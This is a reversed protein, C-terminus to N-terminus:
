AGRIEPAAQHAVQEDLLRAREGGDLIEAAEPVQPDADRGRAGHIAVREHEGVPEDAVRVAGGRQLAGHDAGADLQGVVAQDRHGPGVHRRGPVARRRRGPPRHAKRPPGSSTKASLSRKPARSLPGNMSGARPWSMTESPTRIPPIWTMPSPWGM